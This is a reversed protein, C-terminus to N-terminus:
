ISYPFHADRAEGAGERGTSIAGVGRRRGPAERAGTGALGFRAAVAVHRM